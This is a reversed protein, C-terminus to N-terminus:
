FKELNMKVKNQLYSSYTPDNLLTDQIENTTEFFSNSNIVGM